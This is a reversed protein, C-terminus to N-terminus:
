WEDDEDIPRDDFASRPALMPAEPIPEPQTPIVQSTVQSPNHGPIALMGCGASKILWRVFSADDGEVTPFYRRAAQIERDSLKPRVEKSM